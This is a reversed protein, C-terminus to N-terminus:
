CSSSGGGEKGLTFGLSTAGVGAGARAMRGRAYREQEEREKQVRATTSEWLQAKFDPKGEDKRVRSTAFTRRTGAFRACPATERLNICLGYTPALADPTQRHHLCALAPRAGLAAAPGFLAGRALSLPMTAAQRM